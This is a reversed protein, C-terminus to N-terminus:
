MKISVSDDNKDYVCHLNHIESPKGKRQTVIVMDYVFIVSSDGQYDSIHKTTTKVEEVPFEARVAEKCATRGNDDCSALLLIALLSLTRM